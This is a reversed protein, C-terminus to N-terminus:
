VVSGLMNPNPLWVEEVMVRFVPTHQTREEVGEEVIVTRIHMTGTGNRFKCVVCPRNAMDAIIILRGVPHVMFWPQITAGPQM